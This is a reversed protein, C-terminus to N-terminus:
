LSKDFPNFSFSPGQSVLSMTVDIFVFDLGIMHKSSLYVINHLSFCIILKFGFCIHQVLYKSCTLSVELKVIETVM